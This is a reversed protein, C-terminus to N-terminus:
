TGAATLVYCAKSFSRVIVNRSGHFRVNEYDAMCHRLGNSYFLKLKPPM